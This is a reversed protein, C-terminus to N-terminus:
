MGRDPPYVCLPFHAPNLCLHWRGDLRRQEIRFRDVEVVLPKVNERGYMPHGGPPIHFVIAERSEHVWEDPVAACDQTGCCRYDYAEHANAPTMALACLLWLLLLFAIFDRPSAGPRRAHHERGFSNEFM